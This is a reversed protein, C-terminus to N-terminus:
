NNLKLKRRKEEKETYAIFMESISGIVIGILSGWILMDNQTLILLLTCFSTYIISRIIFEKFWKM